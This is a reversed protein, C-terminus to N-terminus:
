RTLEESVRLTRQIRAARRSSRQPKHLSAPLAEYFRMKAMSAWFLSHNWHQAANNFIARDSTEAAAIILNRAALEGLASQWMATILGATIITSATRRCILKYRMRRM